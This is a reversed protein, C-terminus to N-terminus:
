PAELDFTGSLSLPPSGLPTAPAAPQSVDVATCHSLTASNSFQGVLRDGPKGSPVASYTVTGAASQTDCTIHSNGEFYSVIVFQGPLYGSKGFNPDLLPEGPAGAPTPRVGVPVSLHFTPNKSYATLSPPCTIDAAVPGGSAATGAYRLACGAGFHVTSAGRTATVDIPGGCGLAFVLLLPSLPYFSSARM